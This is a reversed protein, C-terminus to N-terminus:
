EVASDSDPAPGTDVVIEQVDPNIWTSSSRSEFNGTMEMITEDASDKLTISCLQIGAPVCYPKLEAFFLCDLSSLMIDHVDEEALVLTLRKKGSIESNEIELQTIEANCAKTVIAELDAIVGDAQDTNYPAPSAKRPSSVDAEYADYIRAGAADYIYIQVNDVESTSGAAHVVDYVYRISRTDEATCYGIGDSKLSVTLTRDRIEIASDDIGYSNLYERVTKEAQEGADSASSFVPSNHEPTGCATCLMLLAALFIVALNQM